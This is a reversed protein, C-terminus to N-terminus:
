DLLKVNCLPMGREEPTEELDEDSSEEEEEEQVPSQGQGQVSQLRCTM